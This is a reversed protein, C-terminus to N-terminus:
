KIATKGSSIILVTGNTADITWSAPSAPLITTAGIKYHYSAINASNKVSSEGGVFMLLYLEKSPLTIIESNCINITFDPTELSSHALTDAPAFNCCAMSEALHLERPHGDLGLRGWDYLRYTTDSCQQVEALLIGAGIAHVTGAPVYYLEGPHVEVRNLHNILKQNKILKALHEQGTVDKLGLYIAAGPAASIIYWAENKPAPEGPLSAIIDARPHLQVSLTESADIYKLMIPFHDFADYIISGLMEPYSKFFDGVPCQFHGFILETKNGPLDSVEWSEGLNTSHASRKNLLTHLNSGGWPRAMFNCVTDLPKIEISMAYEYGM